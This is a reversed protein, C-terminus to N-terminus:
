TVLKVFNKTVMEVFSPQVHRGDEEFVTGSGTIAGLGAMAMEYSPYYTVKDPYERTIQGAVARLISKSEINATGVDVKSFTRELRVPSVSLVVHRDAYTGFLLDLMVKVNEYNEMFTSLRFKALGNGGGYGTGPPRCIYKATEAHQWVETLGLTIVVVRSKDLGERVAATIRDSLSVLRDRTAAYTLKRYPDQIVEASKLMKNIPADQVTWYGRDRDKWLGLAAEFEQRMTFTDYHAPMVREPIKDFMESARDWPVGVYNPYTEFGHATLARRVELAFCSGITFVSDGPNLVKRPLMVISPHSKFDAWSRLDVPVKDAM